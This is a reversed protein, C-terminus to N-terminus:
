EERLAIMPDVRTARLAPLVAAVVASVLLVAVAAGIVVPDTPAVGYLLSALVRGGVIVIGIGVVAGIVVIRLGDRLVLRVLRGAQAGLALRVGFEHRRSAVLYSLVSYLGLSALILALLGFGGFLRAALQWPRYQPELTEAMLAVRGAEGPITDGVARRLHDLVAAPDGVTRVVIGEAAISDRSTMGPTQELPFYLVDSPEEVVRYGHANQAIGVVTYCPSSADFMRLCEGLANRGPWILREAEESIVVVPAAGFRDEPSLDRGRVIRTGVTALYGPEVTVYSGYDGLARVTDGSRTFVGRAGFRGALPAIGTLAVSAVGPLSRAAEAIGPLRAATASDRGSVTIVRDVDYGLEIGRINQLSRALLGTGVLLTLSLAAQVGILLTHAASRRSGAGQANDKIVTNVDVTLMARAAVLAAAVGGVIGLVITFLAIRADVPAVGWAIDPLLASRLAGGIWRAAIVAAAASLLALIVSELLIQGFLRTRGIGLALRLAIERRRQLARALLMNGANASAVILVLLAVGALVVSISMEQTLTTPGRAAIISGPRIRVTPEEFERAGSKTRDHQRIGARLGEQALVALQAESEGPPVRAIVRLALLGRDEYWKHEAGRRFGVFGSLPLWVDTADLDVGTFGRPAIGVITVPHDDVRIVRGLVADDGGLERQWLSWSIIAASAREGFRLEEAMFDRGITPRVGLVRFFDPTVWGSGLLRPRDDDIEVRTNKGLRYVTAAFRPEIFSEVDRTEPFSFTTQVSEGGAKTQWVTYLRRLSAPDSVVAPPRLFIRDVITFVAANAGVGLALTLVVTATFAPRNVLGRVIQRADSRLIDLLHVRRVRRLRRADLARCDALSRKVDGFRALAQARADEPSMGNATLDDIETELHFRFEDAVDRDPDPGLIQLYRRWKSSADKM